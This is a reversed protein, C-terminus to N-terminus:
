DDETREPDAYTWAPFGTKCFAYLAENITADYAPEFIIPEGPVLTRYIRKQLHYPIIAHAGDSERYAFAIETEKASRSVALIRWLKPAAEQFDFDKIIPKGRYSAPDKPRHMRPGVRSGGGHFRQRSGPTDRLFRLYNRTEEESLKGAELRAVFAQSRSYRRGAEGQTLHKEEIRTARAMAGLREAKSLGDEM